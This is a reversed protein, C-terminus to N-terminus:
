SARGAFAFNDQAGAFVNYFPAANETTVDYLQTVPLNRKFDWNAGRDFSEYVGGDCGVLYHDNNNQDIWIEHNDVHKSKEGLRRITRGGDDSVMLFVNMVYVRDVNKPDAVIRAYYMAGADFDNRKEWSGCRAQSRFIGGKRDAAEITAYVVNPDVPSIAIGIRGMETVPLGARMKNWTAGADTSKYIATEPGGDILTFMHRRRQYSAAYVTESNQPDIVVDTVGTNESINLINKWTKGGDTTKFLGRDGGPGWLPGQAAVYVINSDKPDIAIRGIHESNKLGANRWTKGGDDSRYLGNGYSVSRQSNNEGTGVWVTLPNKPDLAIAGISYSGERDFVPIWTTGDNVTKWVGGSASAVFFHSPNNPEVAFGIVRGSTFAPGISRFKLGNFTPTSMPDRPKSEDESAQEPRKAADPKAAEPSPRQAPTAQPQAKDDDQAIVILPLASLILCVCILNLTRSVVTSPRM